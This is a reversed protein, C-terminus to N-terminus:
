EPCSAAEEIVTHSECDLVDPCLLHEGADTPPARPWRSPAFANVARVSVPPDAQPRAAAWAGDMWLLLAEPGGVEAPVVRM